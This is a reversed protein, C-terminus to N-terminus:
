RKRLIVALYITSGAMLVTGIPAILAVPHNSTFPPYVTNLGLFLATWAYSMAYYFDYKQATDVDERRWLKYITAKHTYGAHISLIGGSVVLIMSLLIRLYTIM